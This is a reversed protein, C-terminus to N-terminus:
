GGVGLVYCFVLEFFNLFGICVVHLQHLVLFVLSFCTLVPQWTIFSFSLLHLFNQGALLILIWDLFFFWCSVWCFTIILFGCFALSSSFDLIVLLVRAFYFRPLFGFQLIALFHFSFSEVLVGIVVLYASVLSFVVLFHGSVTDVIILM